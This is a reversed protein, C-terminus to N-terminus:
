VDCKTKRKMSAPDPINNVTLTTLFREKKHFFLSIKQKSKQLFNNKHENYILKSHFM